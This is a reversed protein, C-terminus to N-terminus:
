KNNKMIGAYLNNITNEDVKIKDSIEVGFILLIENGIAILPINDRELKPIKKDIFYDKLKKTGGKFKTFVDGEKRTRLVANKPIKDGDFVLFSSDFEKKIIVCKDNFDFLNCSFIYEKKQIQIKKDVFITIKEYEKVAVINKPLVIKSGTKLTKLKCVDELHIQEYDKKLGLKVLITKVGRKLLVNNLNLPLYYKDSHREIYSDALSQM